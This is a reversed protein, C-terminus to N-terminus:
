KLVYRCSITSFIEKASTLHTLDFDIEHGVGTVDSHGIAFLTISELPKNGALFTGKWIISPQGTVGSYGATGKKAGKSYFDNFQFSCNAEIYLTLKKGYLEKPVKWALHQNDKPTAGSVADPQLDKESKRVKEWVPSASPRAKAGRWGNLALKKTVFITKTSGTSEDEVWIAYTPYSKGWIKVPYIDHNMELDIELVGQKEQAFAVASIFVIIWVALTILAINRHNM